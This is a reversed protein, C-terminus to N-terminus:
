KIEMIQIDDSAKYFMVAQQNYYKGTMKAIIQMQDATCMVQVPIMRETFLAGDPSVWQGKAPHLITLGGTIERVKADWVRHYRVRIPKGTGTHLTPVLVVWLAKNMHRGTHSRGRWSM